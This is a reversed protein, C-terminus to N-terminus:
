WEIRDMDKTLITHAFVEAARKRQMELKTWPAFPSHHILALKGVKALKAIMAAGHTTVHGGYIYEELPSDNRTNPSEENHEHLLLPVGKVFAISESNPESDTVYAMGFSFRFALSGEGRHYQRRVSVAYDAIEQKGEKLKIWQIHGHEKEYQIPFYGLSPLESFVKKKEMGFVTVNKEKLLNFAAYFGFTHDLHYHSLFLHINKVNTLLAKGGEEALRFLGSGADLIILTDGHPIAYCATQRNFSPFFGNTGLPLITM